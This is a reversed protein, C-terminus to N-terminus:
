SCIDRYYGQTATIGCHMDYHVSKLFYRRVTEPPVIADENCIVGDEM